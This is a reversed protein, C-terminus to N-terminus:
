RAGGPLWRALWGRFSRWLLRGADLVPPEERPVSFAPAPHAPAPDAPISGDAMEQGGELRRRVNAAFDRTLAAALEKVIAGRSFQALPGTLSYDVRIGVRTASPGEEALMWTAEGKVRSGSRRDAGAGVVSGTWESADRRLTGQGRFAATIPGLRVTFTLDLEAGDATARPEGELSAGPLCEVLMRVDEFATWLASRGYPLSFSEELQM